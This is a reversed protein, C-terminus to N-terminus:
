SAAEKSAEYGPQWERSDKIHGHHLGVADDLRQQLRDARGKEAWWAALGRKGVARLRAVRHELAAAYEPDAEALASNRRGLELVRGELRRSTADAEMLQRATIQQATRFADREIRAEDREVRLRDALARADALEQEHRRRTILGFM